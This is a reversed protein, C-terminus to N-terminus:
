LFIIAEIEQGPQICMLICIKTFFKSGILLVCSLLSREGIIFHRVGDMELWKGMMVTVGDAAGVGRGVQPDYQVILSFASRVGKLLEM